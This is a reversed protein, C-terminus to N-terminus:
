HRHGFRLNRRLHRCLDPQLLSCLSDNGRCQSDCISVLRNQEHGPHKRVHLQVRRHEHRHDPIHGHDRHGPRRQLPPCNCCRRQNKLQRETAPSFFSRCHLGSDLYIAPFIRLSLRCGPRRLRCSITRGRDHLLAEACPQKGAAFCM